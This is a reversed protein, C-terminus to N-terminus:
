QPCASFRMVTGPTVQKLRM